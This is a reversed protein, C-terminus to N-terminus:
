CDDANSVLIGNAFYNHALSDVTFTYTTIPGEKFEISEVKIWEGDQTLIEDGIELPMANRNDYAVKSKEPNIAAWGQTGDPKRVYFPHDDTPSLLGNIDYVGERIKTVQKTVKSAISYHYELNYSLVEDDIEIDEINKLTGDAMTIRTGAPFCCSEKVTLQFPCIVEKTGRTVHIDAYYTGPNMDHIHWIVQISDGTESSLEVYQEHQGSKDWNYDDGTGGSAYLTKYWLAINDYCEATVSPPTITLSDGEEQGENMEVTIDYVEGTEIDGHSLIVTETEYGEKEFTLTYDQNIYRLDFAYYYNAVTPYSNPFSGLINTKCSKV